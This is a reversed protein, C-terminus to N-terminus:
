LAGDSVSSLVPLAAKTHFARHIWLHLLQPSDALERKAPNEQPSRLLLGRHGTCKTREPM